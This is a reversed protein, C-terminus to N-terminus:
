PSRPSSSPITGGIFMGVLVVPNSIEPSFGRPQTGTRDSMRPSSPWHRWRPRASRLLGQRHRRHHQGEDSGDTIKRTEKGMGAMEAIGGANDAVPGYADFPWPSVWRPQMGVAAIGVGYFVQCSPPSTSSASLFLVPLVVSEMGVALGTIMVTAPGTEGSKAIKRVPNGGTYYETILGIAM